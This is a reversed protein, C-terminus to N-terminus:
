SDVVKITGLRWTQKNGDGYDLVIRYGASKFEYASIEAETLNLNFQGSAPTHIIKGNAVTLIDYVEGNSAHFITMTMTYGTTDQPTVEDDEFFNVTEHWDGGLVLEIDDRLYPALETM